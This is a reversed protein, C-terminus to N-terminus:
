HIESYDNGIQVDCDLDRNLKLSASVRNIAEKLIDTWVVLTNKKVMLILEDHFQAVFPMTAGYREKVIDGTAKCWEDFIYAGLGQCLTSFRDKEAKLWYWLGSVPNYQWMEGNAHKVTTSKAIKKISWNLKWYGSHVAKAVEEPIGLQRMLTEVGAGYQCAYNGGKGIHRQDSHDEQKAKHAKIQKDTLLGGLLCVQLHPDYGEEMQLKVYEPDYKWQFHHKCRDELSSLDSGINQYGEPCGLLGRIEKGYPVRTSPLNVLGSHKLRLTNTFGNCRAAIFGDDDVERLFGKVISLRHSLIGLGELNEIGKDPYQKILRKVSHCVGGDGDGIQPIKRTEGTEKNRKYDFTAPVWGLSYLWNKIQQHSGANPERYGTIVELEGDYDFPVGHEKTLTDWKLGTASLEGNKKFPKAPRTKKAIVPVQPMSSQLADFREDKRAELEDILNNCGKIDLKWRNLNQIRQLEMKFMLYDILKGKGAPTDYIANLQQQQMLWLKVQIKCDEMVRHDYVSPDENIWDYVPPKPVGFVEGWPELGHKTLRPNLYWSLALTDLIRCNDVNYGLYKLAEGDFCIGNHMVLTIGSDLFAQLESGLKGNSRSFLREEGTVPNIAGFCHLLPKNQKKMDDLLGTTEIDTCWLEGLGHVFSKM